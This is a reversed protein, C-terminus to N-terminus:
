KEDLRVVIHRIVDDRLKLLRDLEQVQTPDMDLTYLTYFGDVIKDIPYALRRKGWIDVKAIEGGLGRVVEGLVEVTAKHDEIEPKLLVMLEYPRM